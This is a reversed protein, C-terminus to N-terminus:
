HSPTNARAAIRDAVARVVPRYGYDAGGANSVQAPCISTVVAPSGKVHGPLNGQFPVRM